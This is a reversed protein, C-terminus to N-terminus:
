FRVGLKGSFMSLTYRDLQVTFFMNSVQINAGILTHATSVAETEINGSDTFSTTTPDTPGTGATGGIFSGTAQLYGIGAFLAVKDVNIGGVLDAGYSKTTMENSVNTMNSHFLLSASLPLFTAQYFGWRLVGGYQSLENERDYPAFTIFLDINNYFGKGITLKPVEVNEQPSTLHYGLHGIDETPLSEVSVGVEFGSYGGLPFPDSLIKSSTGFGIVQLAEIRDNKTMHLPLEISAQAPPAFGITAVATAFVTFLIFTNFLNERIFRM